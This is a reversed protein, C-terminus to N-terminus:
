SAARLAKAVAGALEDMSFPKSLVGIPEAKLLADLGDMGAHGTILLIPQSWGRERLASVLAKGGMVPMVLDSIVLAIEPGRESMRQLAAAGDAASVVQYRLGTLSLSLAERLAAEDEVVLVLENDGQPMSGSEAAAPAASVDTLAPLYISFTTGENEVTDIGIQGDHQGVIGHVQALGLGSGEGPGKTTYFPEFVFPLAQEDIGTGTDSITLRVWHKAPRLALAAHHGAPASVQALTITLRGGNPMADRANVALNTIIQQIRTPDAHITFAGPDHRFEIHINEPLTRQLLNVQEMVLPVLEVSRKELIGRRSFDLIQSVLKSAHWAQKDVVAIRDRNERSLSGSQLALRTYLVISALINNFDHAIGAALHGVSALREQRVREEELQKRHTIEEKVAIYHTVTGEDDRVGAISALEWFLAGGKKRNLIEGRWEQGAAITAWMEQYFAAPHEGSQLLRPNRGLVEEVSYETTERFKPNVYEIRGAADTIV